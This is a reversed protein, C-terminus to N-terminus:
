VYPKINIKIQQPWTNELKDLVAELRTFTEVVVRIDGNEKHIDAIARGNDAIKAHRFEMSQEFDTMQLRIYNLANTTQVHNVKILNM